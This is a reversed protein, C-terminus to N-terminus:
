NLLTHTHTKKKKKIQTSWGPEHHIIEIQNKKDVNFQKASHVRMRVFDTSEQVHAFDLNKLLFYEDFLCCRKVCCIKRRKKKRNIEESYVFRERHEKKRSKNEEEDNAQIGCLFVVGEEWYVVVSIHVFMISTTKRRRRSRAQGVQLISWNKKSSYKTSSWGRRKKEREREWEFM